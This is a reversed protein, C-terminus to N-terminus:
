TFGLGKALQSFEPAPRLPDLLPDAFMSMLGSDHLAFAARLAALAKAPDGWQAYIQAYQYNSKEGYEAILAALGSQAKARNGRKFDIIAQGPIRRVNQKEQAFSAYAEDYRGLLYQATGISSASGNQAPNLALGRRYAAIAEDYRGARISIDGSIRYVRINLPDLALARAIADAASAQDRMGSSFGAFRSLIDADGPGLAYSRAYARRASKMDLQGGALAFGLASFGEAFQPALTTARQGAAVAQDYLRLREDHGAYLNGIISLSRSRAAHARAYHEDMAIAEDFRALAARDSNEDTGAEYLDRGRLYADFAAVSSTGGLQKAGSAVPEDIATSLERAVAEAIETQVAFIDALPRQYTQAWRSIGTQGDTLDVAIKIQDAAKQVNGDLLFAAGLERAIEKGGASHDRFKESSTPGVVQLLLNRSLQARIESTLGDSFYRQNSDGSLNAFPLVAVSHGSASGGLLGVRWAAGGAAALALVGGGALLARRGFRPEAGSWLQRPVASAAAPAPKGALVAVAALMKAAGEGRKGHALDICQFQGFGLPPATGDLSLPVLRGSDRGRAAEDHVWHSGASTKSWLVVVARAHELAAETAHHFRVGGELLGDWWVTHGAAELARIIPLAAKRDARSYSFFVAYDPTQPPVAGFSTAPAGSSATDDM